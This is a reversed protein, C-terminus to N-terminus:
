SSIDDIRETSKHNNVKGDRRIPPATNMSGLGVNYPNLCGFTYMNVRTIQLELIQQTNDRPEALGAPHGCRHYLACCVRQSRYRILTAYISLYM